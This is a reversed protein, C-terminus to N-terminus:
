RLNQVKQEDLVELQTNQMEKDFFDLVEMLKRQVKPDEESKIAHHWINQVKDILINIPKVEKGVESQCKQIDILLKGLKTMADVQKASDMTSDSVIEYYKLEASNFLSELAMEKERKERVIDNLFRCYESMQLKKHQQGYHHDLHDKINRFSMKKSGPNQECYTDFFRQVPAYSGTRAFYEEAEMRAPHHCFKCNRRTIIDEPEFEALRAIFSDRKKELNELSLIKEQENSM